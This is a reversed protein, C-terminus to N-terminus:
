HSSELPLLVMNRADINVSNICWLYKIIISTPARDLSQIQIIKGDNSEDQHSSDLSPLIM